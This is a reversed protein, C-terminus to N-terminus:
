SNKSASETTALENSKEKSDQTGATKQLGTAASPNKKNMVRQPRFFNMPPRIGTAAVQPNNIARYPISNAAQLPWARLSSGPLAMSPVLLPPAAVLSGAANSTAQFSVPAGTSSITAGLPFSAIGAQHPMNLTASPLPLLGMGKENRLAGPLFQGAGKVAMNGESTAQAQREATSTAGMGMPLLAGNVLPALSGGRGSPGVLNSIGGAERLYHQMNSEHNFSNLMRPTVGSVSGSLPQVGIGSYNGVDERPVHNMQPISLGHISSHSNDRTYGSTGHLFSDLSDVRNGLFGPDNQLYKLALQDVEEITGQGVGAQGAYTSEGLLKSGVFFSADGKEVHLQANPLTNRSSLVDANDWRSDMGPAANQSQLGSASFLQILKLVQDASLECDFKGRESLNEKLVDKVIDDALPLCERYLRVRVQSAYSGQFERFAEPVLNLGGHSAAEFIGFLEKTEFNFLFLKTGPVVREVIDRQASPLGFVGYHFCERKTMTSCLFVLGAPGQGHWAAPIRNNGENRLYQAHSVRFEDDVVERRSRPSM